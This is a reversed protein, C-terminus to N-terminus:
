EPAGDIINNIIQFSCYIFTPRFILIGRNKFSFIEIGGMLNIYCLYSTTVGCRV